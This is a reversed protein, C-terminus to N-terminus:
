MNPKFVVSRVKEIVADLADDTEQHIFNSQYGITTSVNSHRYLKQLMQIPITDGALSGFTHRAIHMTLSIDIEAAPAVYKRLLKDIASTKYAIIRQVEFEDNLDVGKLEPFVLDDRNTQFQEYQKLIRRAKDPIKFSGTKDNKNMSYHLRYNQFDSWKLRFIDSVRMGAFYFSFLWLKRAHDHRPNTLRVNELAIVNEASLGVKKTEPFKIKVGDDSGFPSQEKKVLKNKLAHSFVSRIVVLHNVISRESLPKRGPTAKHVSRLWVTFKELLGPTLDSFVIDGGKLFRQFNELRSQDPTHQNYKGSDQLQQLYEKAQGFFSAGAGPKVTAKLAQASVHDRETVVELIKDNAEAIKTMLFNNLRASNPHSKKVRQKIADWDTARINQGIHMISKKRDKIIQLALAQTGDKNLKTRLIVKISSM